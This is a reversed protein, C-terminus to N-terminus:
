VIGHRTRAVPRCTACWFGSAIVQVRAVLHPWEQLALPSPSVLDPNRSEGLDEALRPSGLDRAVDQRLPLHRELCAGRQLPAAGGPVYKLRQGAVNPETTCTTSRGAPDPAGRPRAARWLVVRRARGRGRRIRRNRFRVM